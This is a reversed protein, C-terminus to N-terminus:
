YAREIFDRMSKLATKQQDTLTKVLDGISIVGILKKEKDVVPIHRFKKNTMMDMCERATASGTVTVPNATMIDKVLANKSVLGRLAVKGLYDRESFIGIPSKKNDVVVLAGVKEKDMTKIADFVTSEPTITLPYKFAKGDLITQIPCDKFALLDDLDDEKQHAVLVSEAASRPEEVTVGKELFPEAPPTSFGAFTSSTTTSAFRM